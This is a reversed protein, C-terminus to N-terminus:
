GIERLFIEQMFGYLHIQLLCMDRKSNIVPALEAALEAETFKNRAALVLRAQNLTSLWQHLHSVPIRLSQSAKKVNKTSKLGKLDRSVTENASEFLHRLEPQVYSKWDRNLEDQPENTPNSFLRELANADNGPVAEAPIRSLLEALFSDIERIEVTRVDLRIIEV